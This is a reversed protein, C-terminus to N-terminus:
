GSIGFAPVVDDRWITMAAVGQRADINVDELACDPATAGSSVYRLVVNELQVKRGPFIAGFRRQDRLRNHHQNPDGDLMAPAIVDAPTTRIVETSDALVIKPAVEQFGSDGSLWRQHYLTMDVIDYPPVVLWYHGTETNPGEIQDVIAFHRSRDGLHVAVSGKMVANWIGMRDLFRTAMGTVAVCGGFWQHRDLRASIINALRPMVDRVHADYEATRERVLVWQAYAELMRPDRREERVFNPEDYFGPKSYDISLLEFKRKLEERLEAAPDASMKKRKAEGM